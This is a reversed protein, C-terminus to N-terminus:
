GLWACACHNEVRSLRVRLEVFSCLSARHEPRTQNIRLPMIAPFGFAQRPWTCEDPNGQYVFGFTVAIM